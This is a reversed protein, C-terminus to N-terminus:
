KKPVKTSKPINRRKHTKKHKQPDPKGDPDDDIPMISLIM